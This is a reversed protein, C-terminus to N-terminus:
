NSIIAERPNEGPKLKQLQSGHKIDMQNLWVAFLLGLCGVGVAFYLSVTYSYVNNEKTNDSIYGFLYPGPLSLINVLMDVLGFGLGLFEKKVLFPVCALTNVNFIGMFLGLIVLPLICSYCQNCDPLIQFVFMALALNFMSFIMAYVRKGTKNLYVSVGLTVFFSVVMFITSLDAAQQDGFGFKRQLFTDLIIM